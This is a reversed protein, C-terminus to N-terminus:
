PTGAVVIDIDLVSEALDMHRMNGCVRRISNSFMGRGKQKSRDSPDM